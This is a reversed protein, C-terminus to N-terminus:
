GVEGEDKVDREISSAVAGCHTPFCVPHFGLRVIEVGGNVTSEGFKGACVWGPVGDDVAFGAHVGYM